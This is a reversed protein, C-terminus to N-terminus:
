EQIVCFRRNNERGEIITYGAAEAKKKVSPWKLLRNCKDRLSLDSCLGKKEEAFLKRGLYEEPIVLNSHDLLYLTKLDNRYRGRVQIQSDKQQTHIIIGDIQGKLSISTESSANIIVVEYEPPLQMEQLIYNRVQLQEESMPHEENNVSWVAVAKRGEKRLVEVAKEMMTVHSLYVLYKKGRPLQHLLYNLNSYHITQETEWQRVDNDVTIYKTRCFMGQEVREPTASIGVVIPGTKYNIIDELRAKAIPHCEKDGVKQTFASFRPLNHIEDCLIM